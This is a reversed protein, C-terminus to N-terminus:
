NVTLSVINSYNECKDVIVICVRVYRPGVSYVKWDKKQHAPGLDYWSSANARTPEAERSLLLRYAEVDKTMEDPVDFSVRITENGIAEATLTLAYPDLGDPIEGVPTTQTTTAPAVLDGAPKTQPAVTAPACGAGVLMLTAATALIKNIKM